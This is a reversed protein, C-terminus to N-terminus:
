EINAITNWLSAVQTEMPRSALDAPFPLEVRKAKPLPVGGKAANSEEALRSNLFLSLQALVRAHAHLQQQSLAGIMRGNVAGVDDDIAGEDAAAAQALRTKNADELAGVVSPNVSKAFSALQSSESLAGRWMAALQDEDMGGETVGFMRIASNSNGIHASTTHVHWQLTFLYGPAKTRVSLPPLKSALSERDVAHLLPSCQVGAEELSVLHPFNSPPATWAPGEETKKTRKEAVVPELLASASFPQPQLLLSPTHADRGRSRMCVCVFVCELKCVLVCELECYGCM